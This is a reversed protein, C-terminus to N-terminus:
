KADAWCDVIHADVTMPVTFGEPTAEMVDVVIGLVEEAHDARCEIILEDHIMSILQAGEPLRDALAVMARKVLYAATSQIVFNQAQRIEKSNNGNVRLRRDFLNKVYGREKITKEVLDLFRKVGPYTKFYDSIYKKCDKQTTNIGAATLSKHLGGDQMGYVVGFNITKAVSREDKTVDEKGFM